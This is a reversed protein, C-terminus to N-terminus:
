YRSLIIGQKSKTRKGKSPSFPAIKEITMTGEGVFQAIIDNYTLPKCDKSKLRNEMNEIARPTVGRRVLFTKKHEFDRGSRTAWDELKRKSNTRSIAVNGKSKMLKEFEDIIEKKREFVAERNNEEAEPLIVDIGFSVNQKRLRGKGVVNTALFFSVNRAIATIAKAAFMIGIKPYSNVKSISVVIQSFQEQDISNKDLYIEKIPITSKITVPIEGLRVITLKICTKCNSYERPDCGSISELEYRGDNCDFIKENMLGLLRTLFMCTLNEQLVDCVTKVLSKEKIPNNVICRFKKENESFSETGVFEKLPTFQEPYPYPYAYLHGLTKFRQFSRRLWTVTPTNDEPELDLDEIELTDLM